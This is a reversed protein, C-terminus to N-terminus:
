EIPPLPIAPIDLKESELKTASEILNSVSEDTPATNKVANLGPSSEYLDLIQNSIEELEEQKADFLEWWPKNSAAENTLSHKLFKSALFLAASAVLQPKFQLCLTTQLSDNVFNWAVQALNPTGKISKVYTLLYKYPHEVTLDFAITQLVIRESALLHEKLDFFERSDIKLEKKHKISYTAAIVDRLKKPTEEVKGALFLCASGIIHRDHKIYSHVSFFRHFFFL